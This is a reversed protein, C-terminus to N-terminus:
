ASPPRSEVVQQAQSGFALYFGPTLREATARGLAAELARTADLCSAGQYGVTEIKTSGSPSVIVEIKM